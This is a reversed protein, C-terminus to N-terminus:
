VVCDRIDNNLEVRMAPSFKGSDFSMNNKPRQLKEATVHVNPVSNSSLSQNSPPGRICPPASTVGIHNVPATNASGTPHFSHFTQM